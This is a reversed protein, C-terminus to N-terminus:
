DNASAAVPITRSAPNTANRVVFGYPFISTTGAPLAIAAVESEEFVQLVDPYPSRIKGDDGLSVAGAPVMYTAVSDPVASGDFRLLSSFPSNPKTTPAVNRSVPILTLNTLPVGTQNRVRFTATVFRQGGTSRTGEVFTTVTVQEFSLGAAAPNLAQSPTTPSPVLRAQATAGDSGDAGTITIEYLGLPLPAPKPEPGPREPDTPKDACAAVSAALLAAALIARSM